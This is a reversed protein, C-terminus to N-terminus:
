VVSMPPPFDRPSRRASAYWKRWNRRRILRLWDALSSGELLEMALYPVGREEGVAYITVIHDSKISAALRAERLFRRSANQSRRRM